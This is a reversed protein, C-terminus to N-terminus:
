KRYVDELKQTIMQLDTWFHPYSKSVVEPNEIVINQLLCYPAFSMAMRHDQYTTIVRNESVEFFALSTITSESIETTCGIKFLENQLAVLRDTEKIKLTQLGTFRFPIQLGVAVVCLTQAIDPCHNLDLHISKPYDFNAIPRLQISMDKINFETSVGFFDQFISAVVADGQLSHEQFCSLSLPKKGMAVMAYYYSASSWDSEVTISHYIENSEIPNVKITNENFVVSIGVSQLLSITMELYPRSTIEGMLHITLGKKLHGAILLLSTIFQSSVSANITVSNQLFTTGRIKLPPFGEKGVYEIKAGLFRLAEVLDHIPREQLRQSGTLLVTRGESIAFYACLFRMATGAHHVNITDSSSFLATQLLATDEADSLNFFQLSPFWQKLILWRNSLSKSGGIIIKKNSLLQSHPLFITDM